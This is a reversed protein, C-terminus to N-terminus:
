IEGTEWQEKFKRLKQLSRGIFRRKHKLEGDSEVSVGVEYSM